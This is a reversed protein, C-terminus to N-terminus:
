EHNKSRQSCMESVKSFNPFLPKPTVPLGMSSFEHCCPAVKHCNLSTILVFLERWGKSIFPPLPVCVRQTTPNRSRFWLVVEISISPSWSELQSDHSECCWRSLNLHPGELRISFTGMVRTSLWPSWLCEVEVSQPSPKRSPNLLRGHSSNHTTLKWTKEICPSSLSELRSDHAQPTTTFCNSWLIFYAWINDLSM